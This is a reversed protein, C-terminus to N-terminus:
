ARRATGYCAPCTDYNGIAWSEWADCERRSSKTVSVTEQKGCEKCTYTIQAKAM